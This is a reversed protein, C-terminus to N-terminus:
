HIISVKKVSIIDQGDRLVAQYLGDQWGSVPLTIPQATGITSTYIVQGVHNSIELTIMGGHQLSKADPFSFTLHQNAPNPQVHFANDEKRVVYVVDSVSAKSDLDVSQIRYYTLTADIRFDLIEYIHTNTREGSTASTKDIVNWSKGDLSKMVLYHSVNQEKAIKWIVKNYTSHMEAYVGIWEVPFPKLVIGAGINLLDKCNDLEIWPTSGYGYSGDVKSELVPDGAFPITFSHEDDIEFVIYYTGKKLRNFIIKGNEDSVGTSILTNYRNYLKATVDPVGPEGADRLGNQNEDLWVVSEMKSLCYFGQNIDCYTDGSNVTITHSYLVDDIETFHNYTLPNNTAFPLGPYYKTLNDWEIEIIYSGPRVCFEYYGDDSPSGPKAGTHTYGYFITDGGAIEYINIKLGNIGNENTNLSDSYNIDNYIIGCIKACTYFGGDLSFDPVQPTVDFYDTTRYGNNNTIASNNTAGPIHKTPLYQDDTNFRIYYQGPFLSNILYSGLNNTTAAAVLGSADYVEVGVNAIGPEGADQIGNGNLDNWVKDGFYSFITIGGDLTYFSDESATFCASQGNSQIQNDTTSNFLTFRYDIGLGSISVVIKYSGDPIDTFVYSGDAQSVASTIFIGNCTYLMVPINPMGDESGDRIGDMNLDLWITGSIEAGALIRKPESSETLISAATSEISFLLILLFINFIKM